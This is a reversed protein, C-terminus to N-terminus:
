GASLPARLRKWAVLGLLFLGAVVAADVVGAFTPGDSGQRLRLRLVSPVAPLSMRYEDTRGDSVNVLPVTPFREVISTGPPLTLRATFFGEPAAFPPWDVLLIPVRVDLGAPGTPLEYRLTLRRRVSGSSQQSADAPLGVTAVLAPLPAAMWSISAETADARASVAIPVVGGFAIGRLPVTRVTAPMDLLYELMVTAAGGDHVDVWLAVGASLGDTAAAPTEQPTSYGELVLADTAPAATTPRAHASGTGVCALVLGARLLPGARVRRGIM